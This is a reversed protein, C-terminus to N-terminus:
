GQLQVVTVLNQCFHGSSMVTCRSHQESSNESTDTAPSVKRRPDTLQQNLLCGRDVLHGHSAVGHEPHGGGLGADSAIVEGGLERGSTCRGDRRRRRPGGSANGPAPEM